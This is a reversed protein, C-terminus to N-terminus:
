WPIAKGDYNILEARGPALDAIVRRMGAISDLPQLPASKGGMRTQVWGPHLVACALDPNALALTRWAMNLAAKSTRYAIHGGSTQSISSMQSSIAIMKGKAARVQPLVSQALLYPAVTNVAFTDMWAQAGQADDVEGPGSMGANALLLDVPADLRSGFSSLAAADAMDLQEVRINDGQLDTAEDSSRVAAIVSWGDAAYQRVFELGLGRNAGTVLVTPM